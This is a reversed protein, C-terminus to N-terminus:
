SSFRRMTFPLIKAFNQVLRRSDAPLKQVVNIAAVEQLYAELTALHKIRMQWLINMVPVELFYLYVAGGARCCAPTLQLHTPVMLSELIRDWRRRFSAPSGSYLRADPELGSFASKALLVATPDRIRAHQVRGRGRRGPKPNKVLLFCSEVDSSVDAPLILDERCARLPESIRMVGHYAIAAIAAWRVWGWSLALSLMADLLLKPVPSRHSVPEAIEWRALLEWAKSLSGIESPFTKQLLVTLHRFLYMPKGTTFLFNGFTRLFQVQLHPHNHLTMMTQASLEASLWNAFMTHVRQQIALTAQNLRQVDELNDVNTARPQRPRPGPHSAEGIRANCRACAALDLRQRRNPPKLGEVVFAALASCLRGPYPEAVKTWSKGHAKSFGVLQRHKKVTCNCLLKEDMLGPINNCFRTRKRWSTGWRCYDTVLFKLIGSNIVDQWERQLWIFSGSPNEIWVLMKQIAALRCLKCIWASFSNGEQVKQFMNRTLGDIGAPRERTRCAPRVARSFSSCVPGGTLTLFAGEQLLQEITSRVNDDLLNEDASHLIDFTLVFRGSRRALAKAAGRSGSFLDLHGAKKVAEKLTMGRPLVFQSAPFRLLKEQLSAPLQQRPLWPTPRPAALTSQRSSKSVVKGRGSTKQFERRRLHRESPPLPLQPLPDPTTPLRAVTALDAGHDCLWQDMKEFNGNEAEAYWDPLPQAPTRVPRNRTPDDAPNDKTNIYHWFSYCNQGLLRPLAQRLLGNLSASSSRGKIVAGLVVQSDSGLAIRSNPRRDAQTGEAHLAAKMEDLNIHTRRRVKRRFPKGFQLGRALSTWLPHARVPEEGEPVEDCPDLQGHVRQLARLPSLLKAWAAKTLQHRELEAGLTPPLEAEVSAIWEDSADVLVLSDATAARLDTCYLPSLMVISWLEAVAPGSIQFTDEYTHSTIDAFTHELLCMCRRRFQLIAVWAGSIVELLKRTAMGLRCIQSTIFAIPVVRELQARVLGSQGNVLAGWFKAKQEERMRKADHALLGVAQYSEVMADAIESSVFPGASGKPVKEVVIFDDILVGAAWSQRPMSGRLTLFDTLRLGTALCLQAHSQQGYEVANKDGMAMTRLSPVFRDFSKDSLKHFAKFQSAEQKTLTIALSNRCSREQSVVFYYYFDRLDEGAVRLEEGPQLHLQFIPLISGMSQTWSTYGGELINAPRSDLILRDTTLNKMLSFLGARHEMRVMQEPFLGLRDTEDLAKLLALIESRSGRVQVKPPTEISDWPPTSNTLPKDYMEATEPDLFPMPNFQPRGGFKLRHAEIEKAVQVESLMSTSAGSPAVTKGSGQERSVKMAEVTLQQLMMEVTEVKGASRGMDAASIAPCDIWDQMLRTLRVIVKKQESNLPADIVYDAPARVPQNLSLWNLVLIMANLAQKTAHPKGSNHRRGLTPYPLPM